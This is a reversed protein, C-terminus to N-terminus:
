RWGWGVRGCGGLGVGCCQGCERRVSGGGEEGGVGMWVGVCAFVARVRVCVCECLVCVFMYLFVRVCVSVCECACVRWVVLCVCVCVGSM